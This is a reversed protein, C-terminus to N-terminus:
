VALEGGDGEEVRAQPHEVDAIRELRLLDGVENRRDALSRHPAARGDVALLHAAAARDLAVVGLGVVAAIDVDRITGVGAQVDDLQGALRPRDRAQRRHLLRTTAVTPHTLVSPAYGVPQTAGAIGM